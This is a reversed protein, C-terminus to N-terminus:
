CSRLAAGEQPAEDRSGYTSLRRFGCTATPGVLRVHALTLRDSPGATACDDDQGDGRDKMPM